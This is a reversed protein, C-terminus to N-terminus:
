LLFPENFEVEERFSQYENLDTGSQLGANVDMRGPAATGSDIEDDSLHEKQGKRRGGCGISGVMRVGSGGGDGNLVEDKLEGGTMDSELLLPMVAGLLLSTAAVALVWSSALVGEDKGGIGVNEGGSNDGGGGGNGNMLRANVFQAIMAGMRGSATCIGMGASRVRTPFLEGSLIDISNWSVISFMQFTCAFLVITYRRLDSTISALSTSTTTSFEQGQQDTTVENLLRFSDSGGGGGVDDGNGLYVVFAFLMLSGAAGVLSGVLMRKRGWKDSYLMSM